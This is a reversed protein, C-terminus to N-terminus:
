RHTVRRTNAEAPRLLALESAFSDAQVGFTRRARRERWGTFTSGSAAIPSMAAAVPLGTLSHIEASKGKGVLVVKTNQNASLLDSAASRVRQVQDPTSRSVVLVVACDALLDATDPDKPDIQGLDLLVPEPTSRLLDLLGILATVAHRAQEAEHPATVMPLAAPGLRRTHAELM